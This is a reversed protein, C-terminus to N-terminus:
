VLEDESEPLSKFWEITEPTAEWEFSGTITREKMFSVELNEEAPTWVVNDVKCGKYEFSSM